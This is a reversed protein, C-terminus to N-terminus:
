FSPRLSGISLGCLQSSQAGAAQPEAAQQRLKAPPGCLGSLELSVAVHLGIECGLLELIGTNGFGLLDQAFAHMATEASGGARGIDREAVLEVTWTAPDIQDLVHQLVVPRRVLLHDGM